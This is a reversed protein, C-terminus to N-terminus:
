RFKGFEIDYIDPCGVLGAVQSRSLAGGQVKTSEVTLRNTMTSYRPDMKSIAKIQVGGDILLLALEKIAEVPVDPTCAITDSLDRAFDAGNFTGSKRVDVNLGHKSLATLVIGGDAAKEWYVLRVSKLAESAPQAVPLPPTTTGDGYGKRVSAERISRGPHTDAEEDPQKSVAKLADQLSGGLLRVARGVFIDAEIERRYSDLGDDPGHSNVHHGIEHALVGVTVWYEGGSYEDLWDQGYYIVRGGRAFTACANQIPAAFVGIRPGVGVAALVENVIEDTSPKKPTPPATGDVSVQGPLYAVICKLTESPSQASVSNTMALLLLALFAIIRIIM